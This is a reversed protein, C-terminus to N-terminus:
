AHTHGKGLYAEIVRPNAQIEEATGEAICKGYDLVVIRDSISMVMSMDHEVLLVTLDREERIKRVLAALEQKEVRNLGGAPEDLLLLSPELALARALEFRKQVPFPFEAIPSGAHRELGLAALIGMVYEANRKEEARVRPTGVIEGWFSTRVFRHRAILLNELVTMGRFLELNQFTRGVGLAAIDHPKRRVISRGRFTLEGADPRYFGSLINFLTTKGAGNPGIISLIEGPYVRFSLDEIAKLGGFSISLGRAELIPNERAGSM